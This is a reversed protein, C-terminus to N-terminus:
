KSKIKPNSKKSQISTYKAQGLTGGAFGGFIKVVESLSKETSFYNAIFLIIFILIAFTTLGNVGYNQLFAFVAVIIAGIWAIFDKINIKINEFRYYLSFALPILPIFYWTRLEEFNDNLYAHLILAMAILFTSVEYFVAIPNKEKQNNKNDEM